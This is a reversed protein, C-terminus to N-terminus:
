DGSDDAGASAAGSALEADAGKILLDLVHNLQSVGYTDFPNRSVRDLHPFADHGRAGLATQTQEPRRMELGETTEIRDRMWGRAAYGLAVLFRVSAEDNFGGAVLRGLLAETARLFRTEQGVDTLRRVLPGAAGLAQAYAWAYMRSASRWDEDDRFVVDAFGDAFAAQAVLQLLQPRGKVHHNLASRDVGLLQAVAQMTMADPSLTRASAVITHVDIGAKEGAGRKPSSAIRM